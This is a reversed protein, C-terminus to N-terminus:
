LILVLLQSHIFRRFHHAGFFWVSFVGSNSWIPSFFEWLWFCNHSSPMLSAGHIKFLISCSKLSVRRRDELTSFSLSFCLWSNNLCKTIFFPFTSGRHFPNSLDQLFANSQHYNMRIAFKQFPISFLKPFILFTSGIIFFNSLDQLFANSQHYSM